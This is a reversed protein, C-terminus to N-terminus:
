QESSRHVLEAKACEIDGLTAKRLFFCTFEGALTAKGIMRVPTGPTLGPDVDFWFVVRVTDRHSADRVLFEV